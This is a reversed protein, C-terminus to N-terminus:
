FCHTSKKGEQWPKAHMRESADGTGNGGLGGITLLVRGGWVGLIMPEVYSSHPQPTSRPCLAPTYLGSRLLTVQGPATPLARIHIFAQESILPSVPNGREAM